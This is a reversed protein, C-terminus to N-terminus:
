EFFGQSSLIEAFIPVSFRFEDGGGIPLGDLGHRHESAVIGALDMVEIAVLFEEDFEGFRDLDEFDDRGGPGSDSGAWSENQHESYVAAVLSRSGYM